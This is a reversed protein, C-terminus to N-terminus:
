WSYKKFGPIYGASGLSKLSMRTLRFRKMVARSRGTLMCRNRAINNPVSASMRMKSDLSLYSDYNVLDNELQIFKHKLQNNRSVIDKIIKLKSAM